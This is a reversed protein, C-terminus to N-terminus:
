IRQKKSGGSTKASSASSSGAGAVGLKDELAAIRNGVGTFEEYSRKSSNRRLLRSPSSSGGEKGPSEQRLVEVDDFIVQRGGMATPIVDGKYVKTELEGDTDQNQTTLCYKSVKDNIIDKETIKTVSKRKNLKPQMVTNLPVPQAPQHDVWLAGGVSQSRRHRPNSVAASRRPPTDAMNPDSKMPKLPKRQAPAVNPSSSAVDPDSLTRSSSRLGGGGSGKRAVHHGGGGAIVGVNDQNVINRVANLKAQEVADRERKMQQEKLRIALENNITEQQTLQARWKKTTKKQDRKQQNLMLEKEDLENELNLRASNFAELKRSLSSNAAEANVLRDELDKIRREKGEGMSKLRANEERYIILEKEMEVLMSRFADQKNSNDQVLTSRTHIRRELFPLLANEIVDHQEEEEAEDAEMELDPWEPGLSYIPSFAQNAAALDSQSAKKLAEQIAEKARKQGPTLHFERPVPDIREIHVEAAMEAFQMVNINEDFDQERPNVCVIMKVSGIGEFYNRFLHTLKDDRYPVAMGSKGSKQNERLREMCRRLNMLSNNIRGAEKLAQDTNGTRKCRESGALDVLALQSVMCPKELDIEGDGAPHTKVLRINFIAHSRSSEHNLQTQAVRRRKQGRYFVELAEKPSRVEVETCRLVFMNGYSDERLCKTEHKPRGTVPDRADELLDYIYANYIECYSIFVAYTRNGDVAEPLATPDAMRNSLNQDASGSDFNGGHRGRGGAATRGKIMEAQENMAAEALTRGEFDNLGDPVIMHKRSVLRDDLSNFIVDIARAMIGGDQPTGQMTHTKGSGTVGYTFLLGNKEQLLDKVLPLAVEQFVDKTSNEGDFVRKFSYDTQKGSAYARSTEPPILRVARGDVNQVSAVYDPGLSSLDQLPRLRCYVAVEDSGGNGSTDSASTEEGGRKRAFRSPNNPAPTLGGYGGPTRPPVRRAPTRDPKM